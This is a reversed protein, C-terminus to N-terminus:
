SNGMRVLPSRNWGHGMDRWCVWGGNPSPSGYGYKGTMQAGLSLNGMRVLPWVIEPAPVGNEELQAAEKQRQVDWLRVAGGLFQGQALLTGDSSFDMETLSQGRLVGVSKQSQVDFFAVEVASWWRKAM